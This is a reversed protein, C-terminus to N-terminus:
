GADQVISWSRNRDPSDIAYMEAPPKLCYGTHAQDDIGIGEDALGRPV